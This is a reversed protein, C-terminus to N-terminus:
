EHPILIYGTSNTNMGNCIPDPADPSSVNNFGIMGELEGTGHVVANGNVVGQASVHTSFRGVWTGNIGEPQIEVTGYAHVAGSALDIDFNALLDATGTLIAPDYELTNFMPVGRQHLVGDESVWQREPPGVYIPCDEGTFYIREAQAAAPLTGALLVAMALIFITGIISIRKHNM